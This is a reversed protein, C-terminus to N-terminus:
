KNGLRPLRDVVDGLDGWLLGIHREDGSVARGLQLEQDIALRLLNILYSYWPTQSELLM